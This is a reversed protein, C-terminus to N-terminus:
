QACLKRYQITSSAVGFSEPLVLNSVVAVGIRMLAMHHVTHELNYYLERYYNTSIHMEQQAEGFAVALLLGRDPLETMDQIEKLKQLAVKRNCEIAHDRKRQDYNVVGTSYGNKLEVYFEIIHRTHQGISANSLSAVPQTYQEDTLASLVDKLQVLLIMVPTQLFPECM